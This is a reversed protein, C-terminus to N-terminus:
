CVSTPFNDLLGPLSSYFRSKDGNDKIQLEELFLVIDILNNKFFGPSKRLKTVIDSPNPRKVPNAAVCDKYIQQLTKVIDGLKGLYEKAPM